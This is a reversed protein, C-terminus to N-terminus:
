AALLVRRRLLEFSAHGFMQRKILKLRNVQGETQGNSWPTTLAAGIAGGDGRLGAAFTEIVPVGSTGAEALWTNLDASATDIDAKQSASCTRVLATFRRALKAVIATDDDQEVRAVAAADAAALMAPPQVLLWALQRPSPLRPAAGGAPAPDTPVRGRWRHPATRAPKPRRESLWRRIQKATGTFGQGRIERWLAAADECGEALRAQLYALHPDIISHGPRRMAREPFDEARAYQHVTGRALKMSRAIAILAEGAGHRRRVEEYLALRRARNDLGVQADSASRPFGGTPQGSLVGVPDQVGPLRRLRGHVSTFWREVVQRMNALLHWRDAVQVAAPAGAAIGSAYETSRDRAVIEIGPRQRLWDALTAASRDPLLDVVRHRELDVIITGYRSGKRKAWDDVGVVRPVPQDPLPTAKILRLVTDASAPMSLHALLRAGAEGGLAAGTQGQAEALRRTRRAFPAVLNPLREAFTQRPCATNRCYFRRVRLHISVTRGLSPLDAPHRDYRSHVARSTRGCDPCCCGRRLGRAAIHHHILNDPTVQEVRCDPIPWFNNM